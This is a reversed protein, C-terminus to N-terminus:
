QLKSKLFQGTLSRKSKVLKEPTGQFVLQGGKDGGSPGLDIVYDANKVVDLDHEIVMLSHGVNLLRRFADLLKNVDHFHLGTTPEDFIFLTHKPNKVKTLFSALKIRQAEGGSLTSSSQGMTLYGLGVDVLPQIKEVIKQTINSEDAAFFAHAEEINMELIDAISKEKYLIDLTESKYRRGNCADCTLRVDAMFQMSVAIEGEGECMECRGGTINFSFFGPKYSRAKALPQRSFLTRIEDFAKVYTVPNSRSSKGIPNQDIYTVEKLQNLDGQIAEFKGLKRDHIDLYKQIAPYIIDGVLTSKGSGSVGTVCVLTNLPFEVDINQLNHEKAGKIEIKYKSTRRKKPISIENRGTLYDATLSAISKILKKHDGQFVVNGGHAGAMPGMDIIEDAARMIAEEHEVIIVTNGIDRLRKLVSVLRETDKPHLGISPEDLIYMAGVLSSGISTALNIRQSEGGSLTNAQRNLTLYGLGVENLCELRNTIELLIRKGVEQDHKNLKIINFFTLNTKIDSLVIDTISKGGVKVYNADKRLRTGKCEPCRTKGRYRALLVRNHIKYLKKELRKFFQNIGKIKGQGKWLIEYEQPSLEEIPRHIPFDIEAAALIFRDLNRGLKAGHWPKVAGEYVSKSKDPIVLDEDIGIVSGYGECKKCAGFPNNFAFFHLSPEIFRIGDLEFRNSFSLTKNESPLFISCFGDSEAFALQISDAIRSQNDNDTLDIKIRDVVLAFSHTKKTNKESIIDEIQHISNATFIRTYGQEKYLQLQKKVGYDPRIQVPALVMAKTGSEIKELLKIVDGVTDKKVENGSVPSYTRGVRAFLVKLYDYIETVTGVTSRPNRSIVKQQIAVAPAIGKISEVDPKDLKGLFQRAYASLSEIYRRQGEAYLTDFALSSKGSGSLGTIVTMKGHQIKVEVNKLNHTNAGKIHIHSQAM